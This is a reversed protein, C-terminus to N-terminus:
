ANVTIQRPKAKEAKPLTLRLVGNELKAEIKEQDIIESLTFQRYYKGIEFEAMVDTEDANEWPKVDGTLTLVGENLDITINDSTVGPMDALLTIETESEFIDVDPTFVLGPKTQEASTQLEQKEKVKLDKTEAM